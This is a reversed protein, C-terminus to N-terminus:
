SLLLGLLTFTLNWRFKVKTYNVTPTNYPANELLEVIASVLGVEKVVYVTCLFLTPHITVYGTAFFSAM